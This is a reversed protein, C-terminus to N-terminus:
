KLDTHLNPWNGSSRAAQCAAQSGASHVTHVVDAARSCLRIVAIMTTRYCSRRLSACGVLVQGRCVRNLWISGNLAVVLCGLGLCAPAMIGIAMLTMHVSALKCLPGSGNAGAPFRGALTLLISHTITHASVAWGVGWLVIPGPAGPSCPSHVPCALGPRGPRDPLHLKLSCCPLKPIDGLRTNLTQQM